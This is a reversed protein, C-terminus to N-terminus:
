STRSCYALPLVGNFVVFDGNPQPIIKYQITARDEYFFASILQRFTENDVEDYSERLTKVSQMFYISNREKFTFNIQRNLALHRGQEDKVDGTLTAVGDSGNFVLRFIAKMSINKQSTYYQSSCSFHRKQYFRFTIYLSNILAFALFFLFIKKSM